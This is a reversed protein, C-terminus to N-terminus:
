NARPKHIVRLPLPAHAARPEGHSKNSRWGAQWSRTKRIPFSTMKGTEPTKGNKPAFVFVWVLQTFTAQLTLYACHVVCATSICLPNHKQDNNSTKISNRGAHRLKEPLIPHNPSIFTGKFMIQVYKPRPQRVHKNIALNADSSARCPAFYSPGFRIRSQSFNAM